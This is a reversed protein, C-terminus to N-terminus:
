DGCYRGCCVGVLLGCSDGFVLVCVLGIIM